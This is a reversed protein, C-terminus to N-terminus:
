AKITIIALPNEPDTNDIEIRNFSKSSCQTYDLGCNSAIIYAADANYAIKKGTAVGKITDMEDKLGLVVRADDDDSLHKTLLVINEDIVFAMHATDTLKLLEALKKSISIRKGNRNYVVTLSIKSSGSVTNGETIKSISALKSKIEEINKVSM